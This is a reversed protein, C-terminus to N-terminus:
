RYELWADFVWGTEGAYTVMCWRGTRGAITTKQKECNELQVVSGHPIKVLRGGKDADPVDRMALFGDNPSNVRATVRGDNKNANTGFPPASGNANSNAKKEDELKKQLNALERQLREKEPDPTPSATATARPTPTTRATNTNDGSGTNIFYIAGAGAAAVLAVAGLLVVAIVIKLVPSGKRGGDAGPQSAPRAAPLVATPPPEIDIRVGRRAATEREGMEDLVSGDALCFRLTDDTYTTRCQPCQKM